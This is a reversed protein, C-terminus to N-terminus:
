RFLDMSRDRLLPGHAGPGASYSFGRVIAVPVGTAKGMVLEAASALEDAVAVRTVRLIDGYADRTGRYDNIADMGAVGIAFNTQGERWARGFTDSIIVAVELGDSDRSLQERITRASGDPDEPLLSVMDEGPVNSSDVGANACVFGHNTEVILIGRDTDMRVIGRSERLVLEVLRPDRGSKEAFSKAFASPEQESLRALRGEGKSVIKQTVVLIDGTEIATGQASAARGIIEGLVDGPLVEPIGDVGIVEVRPGESEEMVRRNYCVPKPCDVRLAPDVPGSVVLGNTSLGDFCGRRLENAM